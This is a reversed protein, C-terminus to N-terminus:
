GLLLELQLLVLELSNGSVKNVSFGHHGHLIESVLKARIVQGEILRSSARRNGVTDVNTRVIEEVRLDVANLFSIGDEQHGRIRTMFGRDEVGADALLIEAGIEFDSEDSLLELASKFELMESSIHSRELRSQRALEALLKSGSLARHDNNTASRGFVLVGLGDELGNAAKDLLMRVEVRRLPLAVVDELTGRGPGSGKLDTESRRGRLDGLGLGLHHPEESRIFDALTLDRAIRKDDVLTVVSVATGLEGIDNKGARCVGLFGAGVDVGFSPHLNSTRSSGHRTSSTLVPFNNPGRALEKTGRKRVIVDLSETVAHLLNARHHAAIVNDLRSGEARQALDLQNVLVLAAL